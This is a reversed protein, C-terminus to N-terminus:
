LTRQTFLASTSSFCVMENPQSILACSLIQDQAVTTLACVPLVPLQIKFLKQAAEQYQLM